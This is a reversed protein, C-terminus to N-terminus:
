VFKNQKYCLLVLLTRFFYDFLNRLSHKL